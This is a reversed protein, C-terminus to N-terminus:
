YFDIWYFHQVRCMEDKCIEDKIQDYDIDTLEFTRQRTIEPQTLYCLYLEGTYNKFTWFGVNLDPISVTRM